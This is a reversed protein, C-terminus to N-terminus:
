HRARSLEYNYTANIYGNKQEGDSIRRDQELDKLSIELRNWQSDLIFLEGTLSDNTLIERRIEM